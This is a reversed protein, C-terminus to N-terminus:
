CGCNIYIEFHKFKLEMKAQMDAIGPQIEGKSSDNNSCVCKLNDENRTQGVM